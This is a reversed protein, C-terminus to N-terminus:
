GFAPLGIEDSRFAVPPPRFLSGTDDVLRMVRLPAAEGVLTPWLGIAELLRVSGDLLAATRGDRGLPAPGVLHVSRGAAAFGLAAALGVPGAGVVAVDVKSGNM